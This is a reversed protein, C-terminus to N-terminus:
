LPFDKIIRTNINKYGGRMNKGLMMAYRTFEDSQLREMIYDLSYSSNKDLFVYIGSYVMTDRDVKFVKLRDKIIPSIVLKENHITQVGQSRGYEYWVANTDISRKELLERHSYLYKYTRPYQASLVNEPIVRWQGEIRQYPYLIKDMVHEGNYRSGKVVPYLVEEELVVDQLGHGFNNGRFIYVEDRLTAFGYQVVACDAIKENKRHLSELFNSDDSNLLNWKKSKLSETNITNIYKLKKDEYEYYDIRPNHHNQDLITIATYTSADDFVIHEGFNILEKVLMHDRLYERFQGYTSNHIFSNPTIFGLQGNESLSFIGIEFFVLFLDIIGNKCFHFRDKIESLRKKDLNHIRVYPPNGIVYDFKPFQQKPIDLIDLNYINWSIERGVYTSAYENLRKLCAKYVETDIEVGYIYKELGLAIEEQSYKNEQAYQIYRQVIAYLFNGDGCGPEFVYKGLIHASDYRLRELIIDVVWPPTFVQGLSKKKSQTITM